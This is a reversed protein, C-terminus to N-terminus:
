RLRAPEDLLHAGAGIRDQDADAGHEGVVRSQGAPERARV